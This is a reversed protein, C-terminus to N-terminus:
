AQTRLADLREECAMKVLAQLATVREGLWALEEANIKYHRSYRAKVYAARLLEYCRREFKTATPWIAKLRDDLKEAESRLRNLNHTKQSYLTVVLFLCHYLREATQHLMFAAYKPQGDAVSYAALKQAYEASEFWEEFYETTEKLAAEPSLPEPDAFPHGPEELLVIGERIIDM